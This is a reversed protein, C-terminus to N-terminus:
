SHGAFSHSLYAEFADAMVSLGDNLIMRQDPPLEGLIEAIREATEHMSRQVLDHGASTLEIWVVRRDTESRTRVVWGRAEMTNVISTMTSLSSSMIQALESATHPRYVLAGMVALHSAHVNEDRDRLEASMVRMVFPVLQVTKRAIEYIEPEITRVESM